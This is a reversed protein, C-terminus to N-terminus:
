YCCKWRAACSHLQCHSQRRQTLRQAVAVARQSHHFGQLAGELRRDLSRRALPALTESASYWDLLESLQLAAESPPQLTSPSLKPPAPVGGGASVDGLPVLAHELLGPLGLLDPLGPLGFLSFLAQTPKLGAECAAAASRRGVIGPDLRAVRADALLWCAWRWAKGMRCAELASCYAVIDQLGVAGVSEGVVSSTTARAGLGSTGQHSRAAARVELLAVAKRWQGARGCASIAANLSAARTNADSEVNRWASSGLLALAAQWLSGSACTGLWAVFSVKSPLLRLSVSDVLLALARQWQRARECAAAAANFSDPGAARIGRAALSSLLVVALQWRHGRECASIATNVAVQGPRLAHRGMDRLLALSAEWRRAKACGHMAAGFGVEDQSCRASHAEALLALAQTWQHGRACAAMASGCVVLQLREAPRGRLFELAQAWGFTPERGWASVLTSCARADLGLRGLSANELLALALRWLHAAECASAVTSYSVIDPQVAAEMAEQLLALAAWWQRGKKCTGLAANWSRLSRM